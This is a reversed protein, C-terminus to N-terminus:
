SLHDELTQYAENLHQSLKKAVDQQEASSSHKDPHYKRLQNRWAKKVTNLDSGYPVELIEYARRIPDQEAAPEPEPESYGAGHDQPNQTQSSQEQSARFKARREETMPDVRANIEAKAIDIMRKFISM